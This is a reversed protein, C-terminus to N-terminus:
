PNQGGAKRWGFKKGLIFYVALALVVLVGIVIGILAGAGLGGGSPTVAPAATPTPQLAPVVSALVGFISCHEIVFVAQGDETVTGEIFQWEGTTENYYAIVVTEGPAVQSPDFTITIQIGPDFTAGDPNFDFAKLVVYGAPPAPPTDIEEINIGALRKGDAGKMKTYEAIYVSIDRDTSSARFEDMIKGLSNVETKDCQGLVCIEWNEVSSGGGGGGGGTGGGSTVTLSGNVYTIPSYNATSAAGGTITINYTGAPSITTATTNLTYGLSLSSLNDTGVLGTATATFDPNATGDVKSKNDATVTLAKKSVTGSFNTYTINYNSALFGGTGMALSPTVNYTALAATTALLGAADPTLTVNTVSEGSVNGVATFNTASTGATLATGYIKSPGTATVTLTKTTIAFTVPTANFTVSYNAGASLDGITINYTGITEGAVRSLNGTFTDSGVLSTNTYTFTPDAAGYVKNLGADPTVTIPKTTINATTTFQPTPLIYNGADAGGLTLGSVNVTKGTGVSMNDFTGVAASINLTVADGVVVGVLGKEGTNLTASTNGDYVKTSATIGTVTIAKTTIAFTVPTTNLTVSYNAGATLTGLTINYTGITEGAVRSLNGTFTDSGVLSTNTYTFTPDSAGYAKTQGADPTVTIAKTTIAFTVPTTNLTVSYNAGATLTGLTINYTGVATGAVRSLNGTFTDSGVLSTNTYTFTPDAAGYVKNLGADPTVTIAKATIAFTVTTTNLTVSYNAGASLDGITINYTGITEGADRSLNGTFTDSGVLSTNTYTFTPDATTGYAKNLGADPTVTIPKTTIAFTVTTTNLTVSYNAGASLTGITINYTGVATGAVRSLNGTFTDSGVLSTNTYTFTPDAAGYVKNLGATPTVEIAKTTINATTAFQPTPLTYNGAAAAGLTLGSINVTKGTGVSMNDFTGVAASINLTVFDGVVVGVLGSEGTNLTASTNGDYIKGSATIGIVTLTKATVTQNGSLTGTSTSYNGDGSYNATIIHIGASLQTATTTYTAVGTGNLTSTNLSGSVNSTFIVTGTASSNNVTATFTVLDGYTSSNNSSVVDTTTPTEAAEVGIVQPLVLVAALMLCLLGMLLGWRQMRDTLKM